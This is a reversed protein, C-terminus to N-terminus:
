EGGIKRAHDFGRFRDGATGSGRALLAKFVVGSIWRSGEGLTLSFNNELVILRENLDDIQGVLADREEPTIRGSGVRERAKRGVDALQDTLGDAQRWIGIATDVFGLHRFRLFFKVM